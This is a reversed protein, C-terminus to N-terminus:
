DGDRNRRRCESDAGPEGCPGHVAYNGGDIRLARGLVVAEALVRRARGLIRGFTQRSVKMLEAAQEQDLGDVEVLRLAEFGEIPLVSEELQTMPVGRPKFYDVQPMEKVFRCKVPRPM